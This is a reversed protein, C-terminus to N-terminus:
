AQVLVRVSNTHLQTHYVHNLITNNCSLEYLLPSVYTFITFLLFSKFQSLIVLLANPTFDAFRSTMLGVVSWPRRTVILLPLIASEICVQM